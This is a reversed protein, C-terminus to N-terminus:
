ENNLTKRIADEFPTIQKNIHLTDYLDCNLFRRSSNWFLGDNHQFHIKPNKGSVKTISSVVDSVKMNHFGGVNIVQQNVRESNVLDVINHVTDSVFAFSRYDDPKGKCEIVEQDLRRIITPIFKDSNDNQGFQTALGLMLWEKSHHSAKLQSLMTRKCQGYFEWEPILKGSDINNEFLEQNTQPWMTHSAFCILQASTNKWFEVINSQMKIQKDFALGPNKRWENVSIDACFFIKTIDQLNKDELSLPIKSESLDFNKHNIILDNDDRLQKVIESGVFGYPGSVLIKQNKM